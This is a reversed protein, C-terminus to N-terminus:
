DLSVGAAEILLRNAFRLRDFPTASTGIAKDIYTKLAGSPRDAIRRACLAFLENHSTAIATGQFKVVFNDKGPTASVRTEAIDGLLEVRAAVDIDEFRITEM